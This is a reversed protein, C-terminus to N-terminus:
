TAAPSIRWLRPSSLADLTREAEEDMLSGPIWFRLFQGGHLSPSSALIGLSALRPLLTSAALHAPLRLTLIHPGSRAPDIAPTLGHFQLRELLHRRFQRIAERRDWSHLRVTATQITENLGAPVHHRAISAARWAGLDLSRALRDPASQIHDQHFVM